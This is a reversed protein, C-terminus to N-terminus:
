VLPRKTRMRWKVDALLLNFPFARLPKPLRQIIARAIANHVDFFRQQWPKMEIGMAARFGEPLFGLTFIESHWGFLRSVIPHAFEMRAISMLHERIVPDIELRDIMGNWYDDFDARTAPWMERPMQLTTGMVAGAQYAEETIADPDGFIRQVDEWGKYLCAAVWLQLEPDFANYKVPSEPTSRVKAHSRGVARRYAKRVKPDGSAAVALYALTTRTRKVPHKFLNGSDVQSEYVGYGVAPLALQMIVNAPGALTAIGLMEMNAAPLADLEARSMRAARPLFETDPAPAALNAELASDHALPSDGLAASNGLPGSNGLAAADQTTM